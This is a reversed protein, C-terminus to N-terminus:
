LSVVRYGDVCCLAPCPLLLFPYSVLGTPMDTPASTGQTHRLASSESDRARPGEAPGNAYDSGSHVGQGSDRTDQGEM